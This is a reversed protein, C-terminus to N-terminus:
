VQYIKVIQFVIKIYLPKKIKKKNYKRSNIGITEIKEDFHIKNDM